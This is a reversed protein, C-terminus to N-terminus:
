TQVKGAAAAKTRIADMAAKTVLLRRPALVDLANLEAVPSVLVKQINRASKYVNEDHTETTVLLSQGDCNLAKLILAMERTAPEGFVLEDIVVVQEDRIKAALAMRTAAQIAKRPLRYSYDRTRRAFTHGGGRRVNTRRSGARANGTGKQRYLKKTTGSVDSRSKTRVSGQRRSAQYMVVADHLLQKNIRPALEAPDIEYRDVQKGTKDYVPLSAM